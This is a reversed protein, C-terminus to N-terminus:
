GRQLKVLSFSSRGNGRSLRDVPKAEVYLLQHRRLRQVDTVVSRHVPASGQTLNDASAMQLDVLLPEAFGVRMVKQAYIPSRPGDFSLQSTIIYLGDQFVRFVGTTRNYQICPRVFASDGRDDWGLVTVYSGGAHSTQPQSRLVVRAACQVISTLTKNADIQQEGHRALHKQLEEDVKAAVIKDISPPVNYDTECCYTHRDASVDSGPRCPRCDVLQPTNRLMFREDIRRSVVNETSLLIIFVFVLLVLLVVLGIALDLKSGRRQVLQVHSHPRNHPRTDGAEVNNLNTDPSPSEPDVATVVRQGMQEEIRLM